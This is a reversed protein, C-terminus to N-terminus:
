KGPFREPLGRAVSASEGGQDRTDSRHETLIVHDDARWAAHRIIAMLGSHIGDGTRQEGKCADRDHATIARRELVDGQLDHAASCTHMKPGFPQPLDVNILVM